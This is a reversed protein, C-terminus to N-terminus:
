QPNTQTVFRYLEDTNKVLAESKGGALEEPSGYGYLVGVAPIGCYEAGNLDQVKDGIMLVNGATEPYKELLYRIVEHKKTRTNDLLSGAIEEFLDAVGLHTLIKGAYIDPKSTAVFLRVGDDHLRRLLAEVGPFLRCKYIGGGSYYVRYHSLTELATKEDMGYQSMFIDKLPPGIFSHLVKSDTEEIGMKGLAYQLSLLIGEETDALTGDLDFFLNRYM